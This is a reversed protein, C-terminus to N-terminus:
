KIHFLKIKILIGCSQLSATQEQGLAFSYFSLAGLASLLALAATM